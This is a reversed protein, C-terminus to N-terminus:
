LDSEDMEIAPYEIRLIDSRGHPRFGWVGASTSQFPDSRETSASMLLCHQLSEIQQYRNFM